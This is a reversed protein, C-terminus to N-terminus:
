LHLWLNVSKHVYVYSSLSYMFDILTIALFLDSFHLADRSTDASFYDKGGNVLKTLISAVLHLATLRIKINSVIPKSWLKVCPFYYLLKCNCLYIRSWLMEQLCKPAELYRLCTIRM